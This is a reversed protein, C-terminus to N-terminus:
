HEIPMGFAWLVGDQTGVYVSSGGVALGGGPAIYSAITNGSSWLEKGTLADLAYLTAHAERAGGSAVFVVGNVISPTTAAPIERSTWGSEFSLAGGQGSLKWATISKASTALIWRVGSADQWSALASGGSAGAPSVAAKSLSGADLLHVSGDKATAAILAKGQHEFVLPASAFPQGASYSEKRSLTKADLAVIEGASTTTYVTGDPGFATGANTGKWSTVTKTAIDLAWVGDPVGGCNGSTVVYAVNDVVILGSANAKPPLFRIPPEPEEGNSIYLNHFAGDSSLANLYTPTRGRGGGPPAPGAPLASAPGRAPAVAQTITVAGEGPAGAGSKAPGGRGGGGGGRGAGSAPLAASVARTVSATMGGPCSGTGPTSTLPFHKQWEIRGLDTDLTFVSDASGGVFAYSRFGRYGIYRDQLVPASLGGGDNRFKVKWLFQFGPQQLASSSIKPDTRVWSSRQADAGNASWDSGGRGQPFAPFAFLLVGGVACQLYTRRRSPARDASNM